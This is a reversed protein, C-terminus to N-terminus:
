QGLLLRCVLYQRSQLESTHEESRFLADIRNAITALAAYNATPGIAQIRMLIHVFLRTENQTNNDSGGQRAYLAFPPVTGINAFEQWVGGTAAAMLPVDGRMTSDIWTFAQYTESMHKNRTSCNGQRRDTLSYLLCAMRRVAHICEALGM